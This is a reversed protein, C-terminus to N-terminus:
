RYLFDMLALYLTYLVSLEGNFFYRGKSIKVKCDLFTIKFKTSPFNKRWEIIDGKLGALLQFVMESIGIEPLIKVKWKRRYRSKDDNFIFGMVGFVDVL